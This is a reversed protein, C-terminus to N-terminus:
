EKVDAKCSVKQGPAGTEKALEEGDVVIRCTLAGKSPTGYVEFTGKSISAHRKLPLTQKPFTISDTQGEVQGPPLVRTVDATAGPEGTIEYDIEGHPGRNCASVLVLATGLVLAASLTRKVTEGKISASANGERGTLVTPM